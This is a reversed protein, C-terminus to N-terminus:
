ILQYQVQRFVINTIFFGSFRNLSSTSSGWGGDCLVLIATKAVPSKAKRAWSAPAWTNPRSTTSPNVVSRLCARFRTRPKSKKRASVVSIGKIPRARPGMRPGLPVIGVGTGGVAGISVSISLRRRVTWTRMRVWNFACHLTPVSSISLLSIAALIWVTKLRSSLRKSFPSRFM